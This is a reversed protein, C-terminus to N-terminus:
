ILGFHHPLRFILFRLIAFMVDSAALNALLFTNANHLNKNKKVIMIVLINVAIGLHLEWLGVGFIRSPKSFKRRPPRLRVGKQRAQDSAESSAM